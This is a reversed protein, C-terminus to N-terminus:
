QTELWQILTDSSIGFHLPDGFSWLEQPVHALLADPSPNLEDRIWRNFPEMVWETRRGLYVPDFHFPQVVFYDIRNEKIFDIIVQPDTAYYARFFARYRRDIEKWHESWWPQSLEQSLFVSRGTMVPIDSGRIPHIAIMPRGPLSRVWGYLVEHDFVRSSRGREFEDRFEWLGVAVLLVGVIALTRVSRRTVDGGAGSPNRVRSVLTSVWFGGALAFFLPISFHLYRDPFYFRFLFLDAIQYMVVSGLLLSYVGRPFRFAGKALFAYATLFTLVHFWGIERDFQWWLSPVPFLSARGGLMFETRAGITARTALEGLPNAGLYKLGITVAIAVAALVLYGYKEKWQQRDFWERRDYLLAHVLLIMGGHIAVMPYTLSQIIALPVAWAWKRRVIILMTLGLLSASLGDMFGGGFEKFVNPFVMLWIGTVWGMIQGGMAAGVLFAVGIYAAFFLVANVKGWLLDEGTLRALNTYIFDAMPSNNFEAWEIFIDDDQFAKKEPAIWNPAQRWNNDFRNPNAFAPWHLYTGWMIALVLIIPLDRKAFRSM